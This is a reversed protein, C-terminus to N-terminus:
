KDGLGCGGDRETAGAAKSGGDLVGAEDVLNMAPGTPPMVPIAPSPRIAAVVAIAGVVEVGIGAEAGPAHEDAAAEHTPRMEAPAKHTPRMHASAKHTPRM